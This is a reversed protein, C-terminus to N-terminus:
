RRSKRGQVASKKPRSDSLPALKGRELVQDVRSAVVDRNRYAYYALSTQLSKHDLLQRLDELAGPNAELLLYGVFARFIHPHIHLGVHEAVVDKIGARVTGCHRSGDPRCGPFLWVTDARELNCRHHHLYHAILDGLQKSIPWDIDVANKVRQRCIRLRTPRSVQPNTFQVEERLRLQVLNALRLPKNFEIEIAVAMMAILAAKQPQDVMADAIKMLKVPLRLLDFRNKPELMRDLIAVNRRSIESQLRPRVKAALRALETLQSEPLRCVHRALVMLAGAIALTHSTNGADMDQKANPDLEGAAVRRKVAREWHFLLIEKFADPELLQAIDTVESPELGRGEVHANLALKLGYIRKEVTSQRLSRMLGEDEFPGRRGERSLNRRFTDAVKQVDPPFDDIDFRYLEKRPPADIRSSPWAASIVAAKRWNKVVDGIFGPIDPRLQRAHVHQEFAALDESTVSAPAVGAADCWAAFASLGRRCEAEQLSALVRHWSSEESLLVSKPDLLDLQGLMKRLHTIVNGFSRQELGHAKPPLKFLCGNLWPVDCPIASAQLLGAGTCRSVIKVLMRIATLRENRQRENCTNDAAVMTFLGELTLVHGPGIKRLNSM